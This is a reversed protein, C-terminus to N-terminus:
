ESGGRVLGDLKWEGSERVLWVKLPFSGPVKELGSARDKELEWSFSSWALSRATAKLEKPSDLRYERLYTLAKVTSIRRLAEMNGDQMAEIVKAFCEEPGGPSVQWSSPGSAPGSYKNVVLLLLIALILLLLPFLVKSFRSM